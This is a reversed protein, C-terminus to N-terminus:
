QPAAIGHQKAIADFYAALDAIEFELRMNADAYCKNIINTFSSVLHIFEDHINGWAVTQLGEDESLQRAVREYM